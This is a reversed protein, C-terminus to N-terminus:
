YLLIETVKGDLDEFLVKEYEIKSIKFGLIKDGVMYIKNNILCYFIGDSESIGQVDLGTPDKIIPTTPDRMEKNALSFNCTVIVCCIFILNKIFAKVLKIM